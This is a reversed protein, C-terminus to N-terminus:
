VRARRRRRISMLAIGAVLMGLVITAWESLTPVATSSTSGPPQPPVNGVACGGVSNNGSLTVPGVNALARGTLTANVGVTVGALAVVNGPFNVGNLTAASGVQWFVTCPDVGAGLTVTSGVNATLSTPVRFIYIGAGTLTVNSSAALDATSAFCHVGPGFNAGSMQAVPNDTCSGAGLENYLQIDASKAAIAASDNRHIGYPSAVLAPPFGTISTNPSSGVNGTIVTGVGGAATVGAAGVIAFSQSAGLTQARAASPLCAAVLAIGVVVRLRPFLM